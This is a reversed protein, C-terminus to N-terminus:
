VPCPGHLLCAPICLLPALQPQQAVPHPGQPMQSRSFHKWRCVAEGQRMTERMEWPLILICRSFKPNLISSSVGVSLKSHRPGLGPDEDLALRWSFVEGPHYCTDSVLAWSQMPAWASDWAGPKQQQPPKSLSSPFGRDCDREREIKGEKWGGKGVLYTFM